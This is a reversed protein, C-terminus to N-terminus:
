EKGVSVNSGGIEHASIQGLYALCVLGKRWVLAETEDNGYRLHHMIWSIRVMIITKYDKAIVIIPEEMDRRIGDKGAKV